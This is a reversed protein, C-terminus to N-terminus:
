RNRRADLNLWICAAWVPAIITYVVGDSIHGSSYGDIAIYTNFGVCLCYLFVLVNNMANM